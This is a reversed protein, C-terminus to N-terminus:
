DEKIEYDYTITVSHELMAGVSCYKKVALEVAREVKEPILQGRLIYHLHIATFVSPTSDARQGDVQIQIDKLTMRQKEIISVLDMVSCGALSALLAQMPRFGRNEGGIAPSGDIDMTNGDENEARFHVKTNVRNLTVRM